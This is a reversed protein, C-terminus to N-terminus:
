IQLTPRNRPVQIAHRVAAEERGVDHMSAGYFLFDVKVKHISPLYELGLDECSVVNNQMLELVGVTFALEELNPM